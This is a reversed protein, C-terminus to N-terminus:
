EADAGLEIPVWEHTFEELAARYARVAEELRATGDEREGLMALANGLRNQARAWQLPVRERRQEELAAGYTEVAEGLKATEAEREGLRLLADGLNGRAAGREDGSTALRLLERRLAITAVLHM